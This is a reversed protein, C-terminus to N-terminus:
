NKEWPFCMMLMDKLLSSLKNRIGSYDPTFGEHRWYDQWGPEDAIERIEKRLRTIMPKKDNSQLQQRDILSDTIEPIDERLNHILSILKEKSM